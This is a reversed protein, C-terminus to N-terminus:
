PTPDEGPLPPISARPEQGLERLQATVVNFATVVNSAWGRWRSLTRRQADVEAELVSLRSLVSVLSGTASEAADAYNHAAESETVPKSRRARLYDLAAAGVLGGTVSIVAVWIDDSM